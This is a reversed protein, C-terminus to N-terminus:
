EEIELEKKAIERLKGRIIKGTITLPLSNVFSIERPYEHAALKDKVFRQIEKILSENQELNNAPVIYAKVIEGRIEDPKGIVGVNAVAPHKM